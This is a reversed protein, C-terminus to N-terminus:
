CPQWQVKAAATCRRLRPFAEDLLVCWQRSQTLRLRSTYWGLAGGDWDVSCIAKITSVTETVLRLRGEGFYSYTTLEDLMIVLM